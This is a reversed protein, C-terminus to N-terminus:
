YYEKRRKWDDETPVYDFTLPINAAILEEESMPRIDTLYYHGSRRKEYHFRGTDEPNMWFENMHYPGDYHPVANKYSRYAETVWKGNGDKGVVYESKFKLRKDKKYSSHYIFKFWKLDKHLVAYENKSSLPYVAYFTKFRSGPQKPKENEVIRLYGDKDIYLDGKNLYYIYDSGHNQLFPYKESANGSEDFLLEDYKRVYGWLHQFIHEGVSSGNLNVKRIESYVDDWHRGERAATDLFRKLPGLHEGKNDVRRERRWGYYGKPLIGNRSASLDYEEAEEDDMLEVHADRFQRRMKHIDENYRHGHRGEEVLVKPMDSRM